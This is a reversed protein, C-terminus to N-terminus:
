KKKMTQRKIKEPDDTFAPLGFLEPKFDLLSKLVLTANRTFDRKLRQDPIMIVQMGAEVAAQVGVTSDEFVLCQSPLAKPTFRAAATLYIDPHPKGHHVDSDTICVKHQFLNFIEPRASAHMRVAHSTSNTVLAFPVKNVKLHRLLREAGDKLPANPLYKKVMDTMQMEFDYISIPLNLERVIAVSMQHDTVGYLQSQLKKHYIRGFRECIKKITKHYIIESDDM